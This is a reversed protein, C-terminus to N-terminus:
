VEIMFLGKAQASAKMNNDGTLLIANNEKADLLISEDREINNLKDVELISRVEELKIRGIASFHALKGLEKKGGRNDCEKKVSPHLLINFNEFFGRGELDKSILGKMITNSDPIVKGCYYQLTLSVDPIENQCSICIPTTQNNKPIIKLSKSTYGCSPCVISLSVINLEGNEFKKRFDESLINENIPPIDKKTEEKGDLERIIKFSRKIFWPWEKGTSKWMELWKKTKPDGANGSGIGVNNIQFDPNNSIAEIIKQQERKAILSAVKSELYIDDAKTTVIIEAGAKELYQLYRNLHFGTGYNDVVIRINKQDIKSTLTILMRQYTIDLLKNINYKDIQWPPIKQCIFKFGKKTFFDIRNFIDDWYRIEHKIKTDAVGIISQLDYFIDKPILVGVLVTHGIVEGKGTEDFGILYEKTPQVFCSGLQNDIFKQVEFVAEDNSDTIFLTGKVYYTITADSYRIRWVEHISNVPCEKGGNSLLWDKIISIKDIETSNWRKNSILKM